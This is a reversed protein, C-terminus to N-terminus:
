IYCFGKLEQSLTSVEAAAAPIGVTFLLKQSRLFPTNVVNLV